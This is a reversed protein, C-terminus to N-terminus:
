TTQRLKERRKDWEIAAEFERRCGIKTMKQIATFAGTSNSEIVQWGRDKSLAVDWGILPVGPFMTAIELMMKKLEEWRPIQFGKFVFGTDPHSPFARGWFDVADTYVTGTGADIAAIIGGADTNESVTDGRAARLWAINIVMPEGNDKLYTSFRISKASRPHIANMSDDPVIFEECVTPSVSTGRERLVRFLSELNNYDGSDVAEVGIGRSGGDPKIIFRPHRRCFELFEEKKGDSELCCLDRKYYPKLVQYTIHKKGLKQFSERNTNLAKYYYTMMNRESVFELREAISRNEFGYSFYEVAKFGLVYRSYMLDIILDKWQATDVEDLEKYEKVAAIADRVAKGEPCHDLMYNGWADRFIETLRYQDLIRRQEEGPSRIMMEDKMVSYSM